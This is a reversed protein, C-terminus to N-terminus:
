PTWTIELANSLNHTDGCAAGAHDRFWYQYYRTEGASVGGLASISGSTVAAGHIDAHILQLRTTAGLTCRLGNGFPIGQGGGAMDSGQVFLGIQDGPARTAILRVTDSSVSPVGMASLTCGTGTSNECGEGPGGPNSCPCASTTGFCFPRFLAVGSYVRVEGPVSSGNSGVIFDDFGDGDVDGADSTSRGLLLAPLRGLVTYLVSGDAGSFVRVSGAVLGGTSDDPAGVIFDDVGDGDIDGIGSLSEGFRMGAKHGFFHYLLSGDFGSYVRVSGCSPGLDDDSSAGVLIDDYGDANVDGAGGVADGFGDYNDTSDFDYLVTGDLGSYVTAGGSGVPGQHGVVYDDRGDANVDGAGAVARGFRTSSAGGHQTHHITGGGIVRVSGWHHGLTGDTPASAIVDPLGDGNVDGVGAIVQREYYGYGYRLPGSFTVGGSGDLGDLDDIAPIAQDTGFIIHSVGGYAYGQGDVYGNQANPYIIAFDDFGDGNIDGLGEAQITQYSYGYANSENQVNDSLGISAVGDPQSTDLDGLGGAQGFVLYAGGLGVYTSVGDDYEFRLTRGTVVFDGFGDGNVDGVASVGETDYGNSSTITVGLDGQLQDIRIAM